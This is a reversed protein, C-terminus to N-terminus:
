PQKDCDPYAKDETRGQLEMYGKIPLRRQRLLMPSAKAKAIDTIHMPYLVNHFPLVQCMVPCICLTTCHYALTAIRISVCVHYARGWQIMVTSQQLTSDYTSNIQLLFEALTCPNTGSTAWGVTNTDIMESM